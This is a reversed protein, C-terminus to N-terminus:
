NKATQCNGAGTKGNDAQVTRAGRNELYLQFLRRHSADDDVIMVQLGSLLNIESRIPRRSDSSEREIFERHTLRSAQEATEIKLRLTFVSGTAVASQVELQAGLRDALSRCIALGLGAGM